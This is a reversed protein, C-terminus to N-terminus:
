VKYFGSTVRHATLTLQQDNVTSCWFIHDIVCLGGWGLHLREQKLIGILLLRFAQDTIKLECKIKLLTALYLGQETM